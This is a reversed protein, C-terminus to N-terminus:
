EHDVRSRLGKFGSGGAVWQGGTTCKIVVPESLSEGAM